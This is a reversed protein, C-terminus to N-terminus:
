LMNKEPYMLRYFAIAMVVGFAADGMALVKFEDDPCGVAIWQGFVALKGMVALPILYMMRQPFIGALGYLAGATAIFQPGEFPGYKENKQFYTILFEM